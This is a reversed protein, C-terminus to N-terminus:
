SGNVAKSSRILWKPPPIWKIAFPVPRGIAAEIEAAILQINVRGVHRKIVRGKFDVIFTTPFSDVQPFQSDVLPSNHVIPYTVGHERVFAMVTAEDVEDVSVGIVRVTRGHRESFVELDPLEERCPACWTAWYNVVAIRGDPSPITVPEGVM